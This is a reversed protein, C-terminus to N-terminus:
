FHVQKTVTQIHFCFFTFYGIEVLKGPFIFSFCFFELPFAILSFLFQSIFFYLSQINKHYIYLIELVRLNLHYNTIFQRHDNGCNLEGKHLKQTVLVLKSSM